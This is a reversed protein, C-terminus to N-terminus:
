TLGTSATSKSCPAAGASYPRNGGTRQSLQGGSAISKALRSVEVAGM